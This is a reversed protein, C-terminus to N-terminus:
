FRPRRGQAIDIAEILIMVVPILYVVTMVSGMVLGFIARGRGILFPKRRLTRLAMVSVIMAPIGVFPLLSFLGLYGAAIASAPRGVPLLM